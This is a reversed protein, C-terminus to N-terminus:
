RSRLFSSMAVKLARSSVVDKRTDCLGLGYGTGCM